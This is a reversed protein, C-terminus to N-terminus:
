VDKKTSEKALKFLKVKGDQLYTYFKIFTAYKSYIRNGLYKNIHTHNSLHLMSRTYGMELTGTWCGEKDIRTSIKIIEEKKEDAFYIM